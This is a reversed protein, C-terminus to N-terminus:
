FREWNVLVIAYIGSFHLFIAIKELIGGHIIHIEQIKHFLTEINQMKKRIRSSKNHEYSKEIHSKSLRKRSLFVGMAILVPSELSEPIGVATESACVHPHVAQDPHHAPLGWPHDVGPHPVGCVQPVEWATWCSVWIWFILGSGEPPMTIASAGILPHLQTAWPCDIVVALQSEVMDNSIPPSIIKPSAEQTFVSVRPSVAVDVFGFLIRHFVFPPRICSHDGDVSAFVINTTLPRGSPFSAKEHIWTIEGSVGSTEIGRSPVILEGITRSDVRMESGIEMSVSLTAPTAGGRASTGFISSWAEETMEVSLGSMFRTDHNSVVGVFVAIEGGDGSVGM